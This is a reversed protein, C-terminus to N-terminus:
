NVTATGGEVVVTLYHTSDRGFICVKNKAAASVVLTGTGTTGYATRAQNEYMASSGLASLTIATAVNDDNLVCFENGFAPVPIGVTCTGTCVAYGRPATLTLSTGVVSAHALVNLNPIGTINTGTGSSPTGLAGGSTVCTTCTLTRNASLDGGGGLPSTTAISRANTTPVFGCDAPVNSAGFCVGDGNTGAFSTGNVKAVTPNPYSGSLDGGASGTPSGGGDSSGQGIAGCALRGVILLVLVKTRM